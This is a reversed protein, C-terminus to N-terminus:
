IFAKDLTPGLYPGSKFELVKASEVIRYSHGGQLTISIHGQSLLHRSIEIDDLDFYTVEVKGKLVVWAEQAYFDKFYTQKKLHKHARFELGEQLELTALQLFNEPAIIENRSAFDSDDVIM